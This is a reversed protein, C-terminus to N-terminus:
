RWLTLSLQVAPLSRACQPMETSQSQEVVDMAKFHAILSDGADDDVVDADDADAGGENRHMARYVAFPKAPCVANRASQPIFISDIDNSDVISRASERKRRNERNASSSSPSGSTRPMPYQRHQSDFLSETANLEDMQEAFHSRLRKHNVEDNLVADVYLRLGHYFPLVHGETSFLFRNEMSKANLVSDTDFLLFLYKATEAVFYSPMYDGQNGTAVDDLITFGFSTKCRSEIDFLM